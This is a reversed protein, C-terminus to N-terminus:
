VASAQQAAPPAPLARERAAVATGAVGSAAIMAVGLLSWADPLWGFVLWGGLMAFAIQLYLYPTLVGVPARAYALVLFMHGACGALAMGALLWWHLTDVHWTWALPLAVSLLVAAICGTYFHTTGAGDTRTLVSTLLQYAANLCVAALPLLMALEVDAGPRIVVLAGAFGALLCLWRLASMREGFLTAAALAIALPTLSVVATFEGVPLVQLSFFACASSMLMTVARTAQLWPRRTRLLIRGRAPLLVAGTLAAQALYRVWLAMVVPVAAGTIKTMTDLAAFCAVAAVMLAIGQLPRSSGVASM